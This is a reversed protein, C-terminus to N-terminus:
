SRNCSKRNKNETKREGYTGTITSRRSRSTRPVSSAIEGRRGGRPVGASYPRRGRPHRSPGVCKYQQVVSPATPVDGSRQKEVIVGNAVPAFEELL